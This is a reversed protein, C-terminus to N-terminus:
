ASLTDPCKMLKAIERKVIKSTYHEQFTNLYHEDLKGLSSYFIRNAFIIIVRIGLFCYMEETSIKIRRNIHIWAHEEINNVYEIKDNTIRFKVSSGRFRHMFSWLQLIPVILRKVLFSPLYDQMVTAPLISKSKGLPHM